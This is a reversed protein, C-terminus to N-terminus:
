ARKQANAVRENEAQAAAQAAKEKKSKEALYEMQGEERLVGDLKAKVLNFLDPKGIPVEDGQDTVYAQWEFANLRHIRFKRAHPSLDKPRTPWPLYAKPAPIPEPTVVPVPKPKAM